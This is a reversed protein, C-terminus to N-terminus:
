DNRLEKLLKELRQVREHLEKVQKELADLTTTPIAKRYPTALGIPKRESMM